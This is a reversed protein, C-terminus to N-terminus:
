VSINILLHFFGLFTWQAPWFVSINVPCTFVGLFIWGTPWVSTNVPCALFFLWWSALLCNLILVLDQMSFSLTLLLFYCVTKSSFSYWLLFFILEWLSVSIEPGSYFVQKKCWEYRIFGGTSSLLIRILRCFCNPAIYLASNVMVVIPSTVMIVMIMLYIAYKQNSLPAMRFGFHLWYMLLNKRM